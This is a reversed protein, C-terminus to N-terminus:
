SLIGMFRKSSDGAAWCRMCWVLAPAAWVKPIKAGVTSQRRITKEALDRGQRYRLVTSRLAGRLTRCRTTTGRQCEEDVYYM